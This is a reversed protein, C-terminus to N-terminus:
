TRTTADTAVVLVVIVVLLAKSVISPVMWPLAAVCLVDVDTACVVLSDGFFSGEAAGGIVLRLRWPGGGNLSTTCDALAMTPRVERDRNLSGVGRLDRDRVGIRFWVAFLVECAKGFCVGGIAVGSDDGTFDTTAGTSVVISAFDAGGSGM